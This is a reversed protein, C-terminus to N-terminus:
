RRRVGGKYGNTRWLLLAQLAAAALALCGIFWLMGSHLSISATFGGEITQKSITSMLFPGVRLKYISDAETRHTYSAALCLSVLWITLGVVLGIMAAHTIKQLYKNNTDM